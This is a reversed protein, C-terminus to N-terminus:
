AGAGGSGHRARKDAWTEQRKANASALAAARRAGQKAIEDSVSLTREKPRGFTMAYLNFEYLKSGKGSPVATDAQGGDFHRRQLSHLRRPITHHQSMGDLFCPALCARTLINAIPIVRLDQTPFCEYLM